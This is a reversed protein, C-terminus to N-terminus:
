SVKSLYFITTTAGDRGTRVIEFIESVGKIERGVRDGPVPVWVLGEPDFTVTAAEGALRLKDGRAGGGGIETDMPAFDFRAAIDVIPTRETDPVSKMEGKRMPTITAIGGLMRRTMSPLNARVAALDM